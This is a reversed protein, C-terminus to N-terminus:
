AKATIREWFILGGNTQEFNDWKDQDYAYDGRYWNIPIVMTDENLLIREADRFLEGQKDLDTTQKAEDVLADFDENVFGFNNGDLADSHFLDYMFNDYTPYDAFWGARCIM